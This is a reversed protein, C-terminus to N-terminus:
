KFLYVSQLMQLPAVAILVIVSLMVVSLMIPKIEVSPTMVGLMM